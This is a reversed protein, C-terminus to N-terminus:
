PDGDGIEEGEDEVDDGAMLIRLLNGHAAKERAIGATRVFTEYTAAEGPTIESCALATTVPNLARL